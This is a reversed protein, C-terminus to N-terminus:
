PTCDTTAPIGAFRDATWQLAETMGAILISDHSESPLERYSVTDGLACARDRVIQSSEAPVLQDDSGQVLLIPAANAVLAPENTTLFDIVAASESWREALPHDLVPFDMLDAILEDDCTSQAKPLYEVLEPALLDDARFDPYIQAIASAVFMLVDYGDSPAYSALMEPAQDLNAAPAFATTGLYDEAGLRV